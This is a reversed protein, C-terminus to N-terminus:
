IPRLSKIFNDFYDQTRKYAEEKSEAEIEFSSIIIIPKDKSVIDYEYTQM